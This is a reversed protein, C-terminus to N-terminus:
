HEHLLINEKFEPTVTVVAGLTISGNPELRLQALRQKNKDTRGTTSRDQAHGSTFPPPVSLLNSANRGCGKRRGISIHLFYFNRNLIRLFLEHSVIWKDSITDALIM